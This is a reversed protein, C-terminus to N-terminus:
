TREAGDDPRIGEAALRDRGPHQRRHGAREPLSVAGPRAGAAVPDLRGEIALEGERRRRGRRCGRRARRRTGVGGGRTGRRCRGALRCRGGSRRWERGRRWGRRRRGRRARSWRGIDRRQARDSGKREASAHPRGADDDRLGSTEPRRGQQRDAVRVAPSTTRPADPSPDSPRPVRSSTAPLSAAGYPWSSIRGVSASTRMRPVRRAESASTARLPQERAFGVFAVEHRRGPSEVGLRRLGGGTVERQDEGAVTTRRDLDHGVDRAPEREARELDARRIPDDPEDALPRGSGAREVAVPDPDAVGRVEQEDGGRRSRARGADGLAAPLAPDIGVTVIAFARRIVSRAIAMSATTVAGAVSSSADPRRITTWSADAATSSRNGVPAAAGDTPLGSGRRLGSRAPMRRGAGGPRRSSTTPVAEVGDGITSWPAGLSAFSHRSADMLPRTELTWLSPSRHRASIRTPDASTTTTPWGPDPIALEASTSPRTAVTVPMTRRGYGFALSRRNAIVGRDGSSTVTAPWAPRRRRNSSRHHQRHIRALARVRGGRRRDIGIVRVEAVEGREDTPVDADAPEDDVEAGVAEREVIAGRGAPHDKPGRREVAEGQDFRVVGEVDDAPDLCARLARRDDDIVRAPQEQRAIRDGVGRGIAPAADPATAPAEAPGDPVPPEPRNAPRPPPPRGTSAPVAPSPPSAAIEAAETTTVRSRRSCDRRRSALRIAARSAVSPPWIPPGSSPVGASRPGLM